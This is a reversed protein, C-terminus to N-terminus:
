KLFFNSGDLIGDESHFRAYLRYSVDTYSFSSKTIFGFVFSTMGGRNISKSLTSSISMLSKRYSKLRANIHVAKNTKWM